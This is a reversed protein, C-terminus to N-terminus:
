KLLNKLDPLTKSISHKNREVMIKGSERIVVLRLFHHVAGSGSSLQPLFQWRFLALQSAQDHSNEVDGLDGDAVASLTECIKKAIDGREVEAVIPKSMGIEKEGLM